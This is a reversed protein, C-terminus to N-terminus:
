LASPPLVSTDSGASGANLILIDLSGATIKSVEAAAEDLKAPDAIDTVIIHINKRKTALEKLPGATALSRILAFVQNNSDSSQPVATLLTSGESLAVVEPQSVLNQVFGLGIGRTAGTIAWSVM